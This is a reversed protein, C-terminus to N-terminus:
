RWGAGSSIMEYFQFQGGEVRVAWGRGWARAGAPQKRHTQSSSPANSTSEHSCTPSCGWLSAGADGPRTGMRRPASRANQCVPMNWARKACKRGCEKKKKKKLPHYESALVQTNSAEMASPSNRHVSDPFLNKNSDDTQGPVTWGVRSGHPGGANGWQM